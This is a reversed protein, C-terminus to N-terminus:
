YRGFSSEDLMGGDAMALDLSPAPRRVPASPKRLAAKARRTDSALAGAVRFFSMTNRLQEAQSSMEEATAALEESSSANQQTTQSLQTMAANIQSVGSSQEESAATIEQVLDSTKRINPVIEDLLSGAREALEVSSGAVASIEQAAVQSREALKRVEAAVVAFGKGHEGARAAEIAANLALLNTQYAIDDIIGIKQAIQKMASVTAKVAEGGEAAEIAAKTAIADTVKSNETNQSISATMEEISASTEEVGSAQESSAQSLTQATASVEESAGALAEAGGNVETVVQSLKTVMAKMAALVSSTDGNKAHVTLTLDGNAVSNAIEAVYSPEGGLQRVLSRTIVFAMLLALAACGILASIVWFRASAYVDAASKAAQEGGAVNLDSLKEIAKRIANYHVLADGDLIVKAEANKNQSSLAVLKEHERFYAEMSATAPEFIQREEPSSVLKGYENWVRRATVITDGAEKVADRIEAEDQSMISRLQLVRIRNMSSRTSMVSRVSPMWNTALDVTSTNVTSLQVISYAGLGVMLVLVIVFSGFLKTALKMNTFM